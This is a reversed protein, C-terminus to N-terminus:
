GSSWIENFSSYYQVRQSALVAPGSSVSVKVPGGIAGPFTVYVEAGAAVTVTQPTGGAVSVMVSASVTGPNLLHINDNAMGPSAKDYWNFYSTMAAQAAGAALVENFSDGYQVRQSALVPQDSVVKVPGGISGAFNVYTQAGPGITVARSTAGPLSVTVNANTTGPNLLHINDNFMGPSAKDYWNIYSTTAAQASTTAWVENFTQNYQVRQSALVPLPASVTVPGGITGAPFTVYSEGGAAVTVVWSTGPLSVTVNTAGTGPNLLHINDNVMGPSAKDFWNFYSLTSPTGAAWLENFSNNFQVRQSAKVAPGSNVTVAVPGGITGAPMTVYTEQGPSASWPAVTKGSVVVCGSSTTTGPNVLHINDNIVGPSAKDYWNFYTSFLPASSPTLSPTLAGVGAGTSNIGQVTL